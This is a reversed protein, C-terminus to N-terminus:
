GLDLNGILPKPDEERVVLERSTRWNRFSSEREQFNKETRTERDTRM